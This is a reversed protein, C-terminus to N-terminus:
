LAGLTGQSASLGPTWGWALLDTEMECRMQAVNLYYGIKKRKDLLTVKIFM